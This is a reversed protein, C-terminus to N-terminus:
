DGMAFAVEGLRVSRRLRGDPWPSPPMPRREGLPRALEFRVDVGAPEESYLLWASARGRWPSGGAVPELDLRVRHRGPEIAIRYWAWSGKQEEVRPEVREGDLRVRVSPHSEEPMKEDPRILVAVVADQAWAALELEVDVRSGEARVAPASAAPAPVLEPLALEDLAGAEGDIRVGRVRQPNLLQADASAALVKVAYEDDAERVVTFTAGALMPELADALPYIEYIATEYGELPLEITAGAAYLQTSIWRSPYIREVLLSTPEPCGGGAMTLEVTLAQPEISPNRAAVVARNCSFHAYGYAEEAGPDGGIMVTSKLVEFRDRAWAISQAVADWEGDTLLNPSVYLEWMAVGRAFYLIANDTFKDLPEAEGGLKQLHGKIIGHTMLNAIPFWFDNVGFDEYLVVDRYTIAADRLSISPVDSYGYDRGQMWIMDAYKVWWPSLWTGSTINLFVEPSERRVAGALDVVSEMVARRSYIGVPHGHDPESCSFQIGDWKFYRVGQDRVFDVTRKKFLDRYRRGALCLQDGVVEYGNAKMWEVRWDRHSYGGIPGLWIGLRTDMEALADAIPVLGRPFENDRLVWDSRYVDWGDDLVFADLALGHADFMERKFDGIIRLLNEENMVDEPRDTYEPARVDYWTNYLLYPELPAVRITDLYADFWKRIRHEPALGSVVWVSELWEAGIREGIEQGARIAITGDPRTTLANEAAPYELGFFAGGDGARVATPRGFGGAKVIEASGRLTGNVPQIRRLFHGSGEADRVALRRRVFFDDATLQYTVRVEFPIKRGWSGRVARDEFYLHLVKGGDADALQHRVLDFDDRTLVVPNAANHVKGPALWGTWMVDLAFDADTEVAVTAGADANDHEALWQTTAELRDALLRDGGVVVTFRVRDNALWLEERGDHEDSGSTVAHAFDAPRLAAILLWLVLHAL